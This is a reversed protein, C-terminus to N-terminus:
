CIVGGLSKDRDYINALLWASSGISCGSKSLALLDNLPNFTAIVSIGREPEAIKDCNHVIYFQVKEDTLGPSKCFTIGTEPVCDERPEPAKYGTEELLERYAAEWPAEGPDVLGSPLEITDCGMPERRQRVFIMRGALDLAGVSVTMQKRHVFEWNNRRMMTLFKGEWVPEGPCGYLSNAEIIDLVSPDTDCPDLNGEAVANRVDTSSV